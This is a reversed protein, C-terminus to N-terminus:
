NMTQQIGCPLGPKTIGDRFPVNINPTFSNGDHDLSITCAIATGICTGRLQCDGAQSPVDIKSTYAAAVMFYDSAFASGIAALLVIVALFNRTKM